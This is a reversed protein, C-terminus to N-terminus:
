LWHKLPKEAGAKVSAHVLTEELDLDEVLGAQQLVDRAQDMLISPVKKWDIRQGEPARDNWNLQFNWFDVLIRTSSGM